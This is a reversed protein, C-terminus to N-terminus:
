EPAEGLDIGLFAAGQRATYTKGNVIDSIAPQSVGYRDALEVQSPRTDDEAEFYARLIEVVEDLTLRKAPMPPNM